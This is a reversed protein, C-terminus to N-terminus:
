MYSLWEGPKVNISNRFIKKKLKSLQVMTKSSYGVQDKRLVDETENAAAYRLSEGCFLQLITTVTKVWHQAAAKCQESAEPM